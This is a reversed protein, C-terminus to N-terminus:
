GMNFTGTIRDGGTALNLIGSYTAGMQGSQNNETENLYVVFYFETTANGNVEITTDGIDVTKQAATPNEILIYPNEVPDYEAETNTLTYLTPVDVADGDVAFSGATGSLAQFKLDLFPEGGSGKNNGATTLSVDMTESTAGNNTVTAKFLACVQHGNKDQCIVNDGSEGVHDGTNVARLLLDEDLPIIGGLNIPTYVIPDGEEGTGSVTAPSIMQIDIDMDFEYASLNIANESSANASFYAFTAGIIAVILTAVSVVGLFIGSGKKNEM